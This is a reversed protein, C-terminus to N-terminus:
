KHNLDEKAFYMLSASFAVAFSAYAIFCTIVHIWLWYSQLAPVLPAAEKSMLSAYAMILVAIPAAFGGLVAMKYRWEVILFIIVVGWAFFSLSEFMNSFPAHGSNIGRLVVSVAHVVVGVGLFLRGFMASSEMRFGIYLIYLVTGLLYAGFALTTFGHELSVLGSM